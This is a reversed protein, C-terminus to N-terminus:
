APSAARAIARDLLDAARRGRLAELDEKAKLVVGLTEEIAVAPPRPDGLRPGGSAEGGHHESWFAAFAWDFIAIQDQRHVLLARCAHYVEDRAGLNVYGLAETLDILRAPHVDIGARRLLRGFALLNELLRSM